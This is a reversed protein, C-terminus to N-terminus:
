AKESQYPNPFGLEALLVIERAEMIEADAEEEHDYGLLHLFGHLALHALHAEATKGQDKAEQLVVGSALAIDGLLPPDGGSPIGNLGCESFDPAPKGCTTPFHAVTPFSLVNTPKPQGRFQANLGQVTSNDTLLVTVEGTIAEATAAHQLVREILPELAPISTEWAEDEILLAVHLKTMRTKEPLVAAPKTATM